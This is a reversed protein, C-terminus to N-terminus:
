EVVVTLVSTATEGSESHSTYTVYYTGSEDTKVEGSYTVNEAGGAFSQLDVSSGKEVYVLYSSLPVSKAKESDDVLIIPLEVRSTDGMSNTVFVAMKYTGSYNKSIDLTSVRIQSSIDGDIVDAASIKDEIVIGKGVTFILPSSVSFKPRSYDTYRIVRKYTAVNNDSDFVIYSVKATDDSILKSVNEVIIESTLDGDEKDSATVDKLLIDNGDNVSIELVGDPCSIVPAHNPSFFLTYAKIGVFFVSCVIFLIMLLLKTKRM